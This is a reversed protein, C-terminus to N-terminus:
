SATTPITFVRATIFGDTFFRETMKAHLVVSQGDSYGSLREIFASGEAYPIDPLNAAQPRSAGITMGVRTLRDPRPRIDQAQPADCAVLTGNPYVGTVWGKIKREGEDIRKQIEQAAVNNEAEKELIKQRAPKLKFQVTANLDKWPVTVRGGTGSIEVNESSILEAKANRIILQGSKYEGISVRESGDSALLSAAILFVFILTTKM